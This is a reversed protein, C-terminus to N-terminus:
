HVLIFSFLYLNVTMRLGEWTGWKLSHSCWENILNVLGTDDKVRRGETVHGILIDGVSGVDLWMDLELSEVGQIYRSRLENSEVERLEPWCEREGANSFTLRRFYAWVEKLANGM